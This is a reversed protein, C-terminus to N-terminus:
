DDDDSRKFDLVRVGVRAGQQRAFVRVDNILALHRSEPGGLVFFITAEGRDSRLHETLWARAVTANLREADEFLAVGRPGTNTRSLTPWTARDLTVDHAGSGKEFHTGTALHAFVEAVIRAEPGADVMFVLDVAPLSKNGLQDLMAVAGTRALPCNELAHQFVAVYQRRAAEPSAKLTKENIFM